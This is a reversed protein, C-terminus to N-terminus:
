FPILSRERQRYRHRMHFGLLFMGSKQHQLSHPRREGLRVSCRSYVGMRICAYGGGTYMYVRLRQQKQPQKHTCFCLKHFCTTSM